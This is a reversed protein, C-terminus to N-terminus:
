PKARRIIGDLHRRLAPESLLWAGSNDRYTHRAAVFAEELERRIRAPEAELEVIRKEIRRLADIRQLFNIRHTPHGEVTGGLRAVAMSITSEKADREVEIERVREELLAVYAGAKEHAAELDSIRAGKKALELAADQVLDAQRLIEAACADLLVGNASAEDFADFSLNTKIIPTFPEDDAAANEATLVIEDDSYDDNRYTWSHSM